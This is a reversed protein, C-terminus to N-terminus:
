LYRRLHPWYSTLSAYPDRCLYVALHNSYPLVYPDEYTDIQTVDRYVHLLTERAIGIAILAPHDGHPGWLYYQNHGSIAVPLDGDRGLFALASAQGYDATLIAASGREGPQLRAAARQATAVLSAWGLQDAFHQPVLGEDRREMRVPRLDLVRQYALYDRLPLIPTAAPLIALSAFVVFASLAARRAPSALAGEILPAGAAILLPYVPGMYYVKAGLGVYLALLGGYGLAVGRLRPRRVFVVLGAIWLPLAGPGMVLGQQVLFALPGGNQDKLAAANRLLEIQAWGHAAQWVLNPAALAAAILLAAGAGPVLLARRAGSLAIGALLALAFALMSWKNLFGLGLVLGLAPWRWAAPAELQEIVLAAAVTWFLPEFANMTLLNGVAFDFPALAVAVMCLACAFLGGGLRVSLWGCLAVLLGAALGPFLRIATVSDGFLRLSAAAIVAILPPQDVYGWALHHACAIFYL